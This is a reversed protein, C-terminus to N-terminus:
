LESGQVSALVPTDPNFPLPGGYVGGVGFFSLIQSRRDRGIKRAGSRLPLRPVGSVPCKHRAFAKAICCRIWRRDRVLPM